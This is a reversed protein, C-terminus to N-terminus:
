YLFDADVDKQQDIAHDIFVVWLVTKSFPINLQEASINHKM